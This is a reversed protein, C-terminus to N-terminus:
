CTLVQPGPIQYHEIPPWYISITIGPDSGKYAGPFSVTSPSASGGGTVSIQACGMYFQAGPYSGAGHLAIIEHRMLYQGSPVCSPMTFTYKGDDAILKDVAWTQTSADYGEEHVKFWELGSTSATSANAVKALYTIIPGKHSDAIPDDGDNPDAGNGGHHWETTVKSGAPVNIISQSVPQVLQNVNCAIDSSDVDMVPNNTNVVRIGNNHGQDVGDIYLQQLSPPNLFAVLSTAFATKM